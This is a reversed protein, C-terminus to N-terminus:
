SHISYCRAVSFGAVDKSNGTVLRKSHETQTLYLMIQEADHMREAKVLAPERKRIGM